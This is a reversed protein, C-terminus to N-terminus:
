RTTKAATCQKVHVFHKTHIKDGFCVFFVTNICCNGNFIWKEQEFTYASNSPLKITTQPIKQTTTRTFHPHAGRRGGGGAKLAGNVGLLLLIHCAAIVGNGSTIYLDGQSGFLLAEACEVCISVMVADDNWLRMLDCERSMFCVFSVILVSWAPLQHSSDCQLYPLGGFVCVCVIYTSHPYKTTRSQWRWFLKLMKCLCVCMCLAVQLLLMLIVTRLVSLAILAYVISFRIWPM